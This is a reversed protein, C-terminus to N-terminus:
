SSSSGSAQLLSGQASERPSSLPSPETADRKSYMGQSIERPELGGGPQLRTTTGDALPQPISKEVMWALWGRKGFNGGEEVAPTPVSM